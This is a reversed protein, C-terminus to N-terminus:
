DTNLLAQITNKANELESKLTSIEMRLKKVDGSQNKNEQNQGNVKSKSIESLQVQLAKIEKKLAANQSILSSNQGTKGERKQLTKNEKKLKQYKRDLFALANRLKNAEVLPVYNVLESSHVFASLDAGKSILTLDIKKSTNQESLKSFRILKSQRLDIQFRYENTEFEFGNNNKKANKRIGMFFVHPTNEDNKIFLGQGSLNKGFVPGILPIARFAKAFNNDTKGIVYFYHTNSLDQSQAVAINQSFLIFLFLFHVALSKFM